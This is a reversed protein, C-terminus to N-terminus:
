KLMWFLALSISVAVTVTSIASTVVGEEVKVATSLVVEVEEEEEEEEDDGDKIVVLSSSSSSSALLLKAHFINNRAGMRYISSIAKHTSTM